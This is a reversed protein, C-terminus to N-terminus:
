ADESYWKSPDKELDSKILNLEELIEIQDDDDDEYDEEDDDEDEEEDEEEIEIDIEGDNNDGDDDDDYEEIVFTDDEEDSAELDSAEFDEACYIVTQPAQPAQKRIEDLDTEDESLIGGSRELEVEDVWDDFAKEDEDEEDVEYDDDDEELYSEDYDKENYLKIEDTFKWLAEFEGRVLSLSSIGGLVCPVIYLLAPQGVRFINLVIITITLGAIYSVLATIFYPKSIPTLHHFATHPNNEHHRYVDYRLCLAVLTGPVVIDGLGLLTYKLPEGWSSGPVPLLIKIPINLGTAVTEMMKTGFVFYIDYFFLGSLLIFGYMFKGYQVKKIGYIAFDISLADLALWNIETQSYASNLVPNYKYFLYVLGLTSPALIFPKFDFIWNVNETVKPIIHVSTPRVIEIHEDNLYKQFGETWKSDKKLDKQFFEEEDFNELRGLPYYDKDSTLTLRYRAFVNSSNYTSGFLKVVKRVSSVLLYEQSGYISMVSVCLIYRNFWLNLDEINWNNLAYNLFYLTAAAFVPILSVQLLGLQAGGLSALQDKNTVNRESADVDTPDWYKSDKDLRPDESNTPRTVSSYAGLVVTIASVLVILSGSIIEPAIPSDEQYIQHPILYAVQDFYSLDSFSFNALTANALAASAETVTNNSAM